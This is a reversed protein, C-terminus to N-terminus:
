FYFLEFKFYMNNFLTNIKFKKVVTSQNKKNFFYLFLNYLIFGGVV